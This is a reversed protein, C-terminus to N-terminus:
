KSYEPNPLCPIEHCLYLCREAILKNGDATEQPTM